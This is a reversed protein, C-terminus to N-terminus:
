PSVGKLGVRVQPERRAPVLIPCGLSFREHSLLLPPLGPLAPMTCLERQRRAARAAHAARVARDM